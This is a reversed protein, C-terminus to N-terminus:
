RTPQEDIDRQLQALMAEFQFQRAMAGMAQAFGACAPHIAVITALQNTIGRYFGLHVLEQLALLEARPPPVLPIDHSDRPGHPAAPVADRAAPEGAVTNLWNLALKRELWDLLESHRVPKVIFDEPEIGLLNDVGREFANASVIAVQPQRGNLARVRRLTEWGDIGPMALDLLIV